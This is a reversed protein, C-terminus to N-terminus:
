ARNLLHTTKSYAIPCAFGCLKMELGRPMPPCRSSRRPAVWGNDRNGTERGPDDAGGPWRHSLTLWLPGHIVYRGSDLVGPDQPGRPRAGQDIDLFRVNVRGGLYDRQGTARAITQRSGRPHRLGTTHMARGVWPLPRPRRPELWMRTGTALTGLGDAVACRGTPAAKGTTPTVSPHM